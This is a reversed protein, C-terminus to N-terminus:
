GIGWLCLSPKMSPRRVPRMRAPAEPNATDEEKSIGGDSPKAISSTTALTPVVADQEQPAANSLESVRGALVLAEYSDEEDEVLGPPLTAQLLSDVGVETKWKRFLWADEDHPICGRM